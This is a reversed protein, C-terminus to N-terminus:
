NWFSPRIGLALTISQILEIRRKRSSRVFRSIKSLDDNTLADATDIATCCCACPEVFRRFLSEATQPSKASQQAPAPRDHEKLLIVVLLGSVIAADALNFAPWHLDATFVDIFDRVTGLFVRDVLNGLAGGVALGLGIGHVWSRTRLLWALLGTSLLVGILILLWPASSTALGFAVGSNHLAVISFGPAVALTDSVGVAAHAWSKLVQDTALTILLVAFGALKIRKYPM